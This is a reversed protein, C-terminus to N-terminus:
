AEISVAGSRARGPDVDSRHCTRDMGFSAAAAATGSSERFVPSAVSADGSEEAEEEAPVMRRESPNVGVPPVGLMRGKDAVSGPEALLVGRCKDASDGAPALLGLPPHSPPPSLPRRVGRFSVGAIGSPNLRPSAAMGGPPPPPPPLLLAISRTSEGAALRITSARRGEAPKPRLEPPPPSLPPLFVAPTKFLVPPSPSM